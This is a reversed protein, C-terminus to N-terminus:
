YYARGIVLTLVLTLLPQNNTISDGLWYHVLGLTLALALTLPTLNNTSVRGVLLLCTRHNRSPNPNSNSHVRGILLPSM